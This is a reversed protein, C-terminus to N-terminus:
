ENVVLRLGKKEALTKLNRLKEERTEGLNDVIATSQERLLRIAPIAKIAVNMVQAYDAEDRVDPARELAARAEEELIDALDRRVAAATEPFVQAQAERWAARNLEKLVQRMPNPTTKRARANERQNCSASNAQKAEYADVTAILQEPTKRKRM